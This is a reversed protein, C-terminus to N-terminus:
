RSQVLLEKQEELIGPSQQRGSTAAPLQPQSIMGVHGEHESEMEEGQILCAADLPMETPAYIM